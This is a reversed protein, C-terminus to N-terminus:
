PHAVVRADRYRGRLKERAHDADARQTYPGVRVRFRAGGALQIPEIYANFRQSRLQDALQQAANSSAFVGLQVAHAAPNDATTPRQPADASPLANGVVSASLNAIQALARLREAEADTRSAHGDSRVRFLPRDGSNIPEIRTEIGLNLALQAKVEDANARSRFSGYFVSFRGAASPVPLPLPEPPPPAPVPAPAPAPAPPPVETVVAPPPTVDVPAPDQLTPEPIPVAPDPSPLLATPASRPDVPLDEYEAADPPEPQTRDIESNGNGSSFDFLLPLFIVALAIVVAAGVLRQRIGADM